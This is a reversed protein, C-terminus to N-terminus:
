NGLDNLAAIEIGHRQSTRFGMRLWYVCKKFMNRPRALSLISDETAVLTYDSEITLDKALPFTAADRHLRHM